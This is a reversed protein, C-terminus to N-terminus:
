RGHQIFHHVKLDARSREFRRDQTCERVFRSGGSRLVGDIVGSVSEHGSRQALHSGYDLRHIVLQNLLGM